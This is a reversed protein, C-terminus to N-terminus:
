NVSLQKCAQKFMRWPMRGTVRISFYVNADHFLSTARPAISVEWKRQRVREEEEDWLDPSEGEVYPGKYGLPYLRTIIVDIFPVIGGDPLLSSFACIYPRKQFGLKEHWAARSTSNGSIVITSSAFAELPEAGDSGGDLKAGQIRIKLGTYISRFAIGRFLSDDLGSTRIKYWGDSLVMAVAVMERRVIGQREEESGPEPPIDREEYIIETVLLIM